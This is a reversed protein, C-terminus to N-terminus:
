AGYLDRLDEPVDDIEYRVLYFGPYTEGIDEVDTDLAETPDVEDIQPSQGLRSQRPFGADAALPPMWSEGAEGYAVDDDIDPETDLTIVPPISAYTKSQSAYAPPTATNTGAARLNRLQTALTAPTAHATTTM